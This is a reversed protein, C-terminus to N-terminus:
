PSPSPKKAKIYHVVSLRLHSFLRDGCLLSGAVLLYAFYATAELVTPQARYGLLGNFLAGLFTHDSLLFSTDWLVRSAPLLGLGQLRGIGTSLLGAAVLLLLVSTITFFQQLNVAKGGRFIGWALASAAALGLGSGAIGTWGASSTAQSVLGWLYLVAEAGERFVGTFAVVGILWFRRTVVADSVRQQVNSKIAQAHQRMWVLIWTLVLVSVFIVAAGVLEPGVDLLPGSLYTVAVGVGMSALAGLVAGWTAYRYHSQGGIKQLYTYVIGLLLAAEFAERLMILFTALM